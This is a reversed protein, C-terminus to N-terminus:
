ATSRFRELRMDDTLRLELQVVFHSVDPNLVVAM